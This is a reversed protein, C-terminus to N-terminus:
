AVSQETQNGAVNQEKMENEDVSREGADTEAENQNQGKFLKNVQTFVYVLAKRYSEKTLIHRVFYIIWLCLTFWGFARVLMFLLLISALSGFLLSIDNMFQALDSNLSQFSKLTALSAIYILLVAIFTLMTVHDTVFASKSGSAQKVELLLGLLAMLSIILHHLVAQHYGHVGEGDFGIAAQGSCCLRVRLNAMRGAAEERAVLKSSLVLPPQRPRPSASDSDSVHFIGVEM